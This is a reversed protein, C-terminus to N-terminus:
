ISSEKVINDLVSNVFGVENDSLMDSTIDTFENIIVKRPTEPFFKLEGISVRLIALLLNSLGKIEWDETLHKSIIDDITLLNDVTHKVLDTFYNISPRIKIPKNQILEFDNNLNENQYFSIMDQILTDINREETNQQYQYLTQIAAIRSITKTNIKNSTM